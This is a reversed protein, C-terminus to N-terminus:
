DDEVIRNKYWDEKTVGNLQNNIERYANKHLNRIQPPIGAKLYCTEPYEVVTDSDPVKRKMSKKVHREVYPMGPYNWAGTLILERQQIAVFAGLIDKVEVQTYGTVESIEKIIEPKKKAKDKKVQKIELVM